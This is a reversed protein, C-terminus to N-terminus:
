IFVAHQLFTVIEGGTYNGSAYKVIFPILAAAVEGIPMVAGEIAAVSRGLEAAILFVRLFDAILFYSSTANRKHSGKSRGKNRSHLRYPNILHV